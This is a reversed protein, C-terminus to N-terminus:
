SACIFYSPAFSQSIGMRALSLYHSQIEHQNPLKLGTSGDHETVYGGALLFEDFAGPKELSLIKEPLKYDPLAAFYRSKSFGAASLMEQYEAQTYTFVRLPQGTLSQYRASALERDFVAIGAHAIHDDGAGLLYKLGFRNEIGIVLRGGPALTSKLRRLFEIQVERPDGSRFQPVWELVGICTAIDFQPGFELDLFDAQIFHMREQVNEQAAAARIFALREPTPEVSTVVTDHALPLSIQGWGAGVDLVRAGPAPPEIRFFLDRAPDAVIRSLWPRTKAYRRNVADRWPTGSAIEAILDRMEERPTDRYSPREEAAYTEGSNLVVSKPGHRFEIM